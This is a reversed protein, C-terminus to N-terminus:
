QKIFDLDNINAIKLDLETLKAKHYTEMIWILDPSRMYGDIFSLLQTANLEIGQQRLFEQATLQKTM